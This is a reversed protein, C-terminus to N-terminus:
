LFAPSCPSATRPRGNPSISRCARATLSQLVALFILVTAASILAAILWEWSSQACASLVNGGPILESRSRARDRDSIATPQSSIETLENRTSNKAVLDLVEGGVRGRAWKYTPQMAAQWAKRQDDTLYHLTTRGSEQHRCRM